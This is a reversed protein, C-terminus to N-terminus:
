PHLQRHQRQFQFEFTLVAQSLFPDVAYLSRQLGAKGLALHLALRHRQPRQCELGRRLSCLIHNGIVEDDPGTGPVSANM